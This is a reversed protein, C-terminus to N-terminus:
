AGASNLRKLHALIGFDIGYVSLALMGALALIAVVVGFWPRRRDVLPLHPLIPQNLPPTHRM